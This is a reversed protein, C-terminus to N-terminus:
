QESRHRTAAQRSLFRLLHDGSSRTGLKRRESGRATGAESSSKTVSRPPRQLVGQRARYRNRDRSRACMTIVLLATWERQGIVPCGHM